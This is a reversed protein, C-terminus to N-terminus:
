KVDMITANLGNQTLQQQLTEAPEREVFLGAQTVVQNNIRTRFADPVIAKVRNEESINRTYVIVRYNFGLTNALPSPSTVTGRSNSNLPPPQPVPVAPLNNPNSSFDPITRQNTNNSYNSNTNTTTNNNNLNDNFDDYNNNNVNNVNSNSNSNANFEIWDSNSTSSNNTVVTLNPRSNNGSNNNNSLNNNNSNLSTRNNSANAILTNLNDDNTLYIHGLVQGNYVRKTFRWGPNLIIKTLDNSIGHTQGIELDPLSRDKIPAAILKLNSVGRIIQLRYQLSLDEGAVRVSYGNSDTSRGCIGTFDFNLLLAEVEITNANAQEQWCQRQNNLQEIIILSYRGRSSPQAIAIVNNQDLEQTNFNVAHAPLLSYNALSFLSLLSLNAWKKLNFKIM